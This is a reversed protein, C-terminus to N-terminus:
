QVVPSTPTSPTPQQSPEAQGAPKPKPYFPLMVFDFFYAGLVGGVIPAISGVWWEGRPGPFAISGYGQLLAWIRPGLDRAGNLSTMSIPATIVVIMCVAAALGLPFFWAAPSNVSRAELLMLIAIMLLATGLIESFAGNLVSVKSWGEAVNLATATAQDIGVMGPNPTYTAFIMSVLQSGPEGPSVGLAALKAAILGGFQTALVAAGLFGGFIQAIIYPLVHKWPFGRRLALAITVSPNFHAGSMSAGAWVAVAITLGWTAGISWLDGMGGVLVAVAVVGCGFLVILFVGLAEGIYNGLGIKPEEM